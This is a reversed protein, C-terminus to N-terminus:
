LTFDKEYLREGYNGNFKLQVQLPGDVNHYRCVGSSCTGLTFKKDVKQNPDDIPLNSFIGQPNGEKTNYSIQYDVSTTGSPMHDITMEVEKNDNVGKLTVQVSADVTPIVDSNTIVDQKQQTAAKKSKGSMVAFVGGVLLLVVVVAAIIMMQNKQMKM